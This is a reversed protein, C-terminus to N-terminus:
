VFSIDYNTFFFNDINGGVNAIFEFNNVKDYVIDFANNHQYAMTSSHTGTESHITFLPLNEFQKYGGQVKYFLDTTLEGKIGAFIDVSVSTPRIFQIPALYPNTESRHEM